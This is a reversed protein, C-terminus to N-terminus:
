HSRGGPRKPSGRQPGLRRAQLSGRRRAPGSAGRGLVLAALGLWALLASLNYAGRSTERCGCGEADEEVPTLMEGQGADETPSPGADAVGADPAGIGLDGPGLDAPVGADPPPPPPAEVQLLVAAQGTRGSPDRVEVKLHQPGVEQFILRRGQAPGWPGYQDQYGDDWRAELSAVPDEPDQVELELDFDLGAQVRTPANLKVSPPQGPAPDADFLARYTRLKGAGWSDSPVPGTQADALASDRVIQRATAGDLNPVQQKLLAIAGAVHPGAGSTGGFVFYGGLGVYDHPSPSLPNDPAAVDILSPGDIRTGRGSYYRLAGAAENGRSQVEYPPGSHGTYAAVAIASDATAPWCVLGDEADDDFYIGRSWTTQDDAIYARLPVPQASPNHLVLQWQGQPIPSGLLYTDIMATGRSSDERFSYLTSSGDGWAEGNINDHRLRRSRGEPDILWLELDVEPARWLTTLQLFGYAAGVDNMDLTTTATAGPAVTLSLQKGSGGLNGAPNIQPIGRASLEDLMEEHLSSGDLHYGTWPAYEHLILDAGQSQLWTMLDALGTMRSMTGMLLEADPAAGLRQNFGPQGAVMIGSTGTGHFAQSSDSETVDVGRTFIRDEQWVARIKSTGLARVKEERDLLGDHDLDEAVLLPEGFTPTQDGFGAGFDRRGNQNADVYLWDFAPDYVGNHSGLIPQDWAFALADFFALREGPDAEGDGDLDVADVNPEFAGSGNVDLWAYLGGDARFFAPHFPDIGSDMSGILVGQGTLNAGDHLKPWVDTAQIDAITLDLPTADRLLLDLEVRAVFDAGALAQIGRRTARAPYLRGVHRPGDENTLFSVGRAELFQRQHARPPQTFAIVIPVRLQQDADGGRRARLEASNLWLALKGAIKQPKSPAAAAADSPQLVLAWSMWWVLGLRALISM